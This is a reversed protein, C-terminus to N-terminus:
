RSQMSKILRKYNVRNTKLRTDKYKDDYISIDPKEENKGYPAFVINKNDLDSYIDLSNREPTYMLNGHLVGFGEAYVYWIKDHYYDDDIVFLGEREIYSKIEEENINFDEEVEQISEDIFEKYENYFTGEEVKLGEFENRKLLLKLALLNAPHPHYGTKKYYVLYLNYLKEIKEEDSLKEYKEKSKIPGDKKILFEHVASNQQQEYESIRQNLREEVKRTKDSDTLRSTDFNGTTRITSIFSKLEKKNM